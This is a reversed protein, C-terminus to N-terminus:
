SKEAASTFATASAASLVQLQMLSSPFFSTVTAILKDYTASDIAGLTTVGLGTARVALQELREEFNKLHKTQMLDIAKLPRVILETVPGGVDEIPEALPIRIPEIVM